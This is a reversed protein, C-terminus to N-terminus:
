YEEEEGMAPTLSRKRESERSAIYRSNIRSKQLKEAFKQGYKTLYSEGAGKFYIESVSKDLSNRGRMVNAKPELTSMVISNNNSLEDITGNKM